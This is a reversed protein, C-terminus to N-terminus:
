FISTGKAKKEGGGRSQTSPLLAIMEKRTNTVKHLTHKAANVMAVVAVVALGTANAWSIALNAAALQLQALHGAFMVSVLIIFNFMVNTLTTSLSFLVQKKAEGVDLFKM